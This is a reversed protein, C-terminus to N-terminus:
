REAAAVAFTADPATFTLVDLMTRLGPRLVALAPILRATIAATAVDGHVGLLSLRIPADGELEIHDGPDSAGAYMELKLEVLVNHDAAGTAIERIGLVAGASVVTGNVNTDQSAVVPTLETRIEDVVLGVGDALMAVSEVLGVHGISRTRKLEEFHEETIGVGVKAQLPMRRKAADVVRRVRVQTVTPLVASVFTPLADM